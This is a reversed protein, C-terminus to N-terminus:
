KPGKTCENRVGPPGAVNPSSLIGVSYELSRRSDMLDYSQEAEPMSDALHGTEPAGLDVNETVANPDLWGTPRAVKFGALRDFLILM